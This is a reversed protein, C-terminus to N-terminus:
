FSREFSLAAGFPTPVFSVRTEPSRLLGPNPAAQPGMTLPSRPATVVLVTGAVVGAIGVGWAVGNGVFLGTSGDILRRGEPSCRKNPCAADISSKRSLLLGGTVGAAVGGAIGIGIVVFGATRRGSSPAEAPKEPAQAAPSAAKAITIAKREGKALSV